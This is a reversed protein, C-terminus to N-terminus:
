FPQSFLITNLYWPLDRIDIFESTKADILAPKIVRSTLPTAGIMYVAYITPAPTFPERIPWLHCRMGPAAQRAKELALSSLKGEFKPHGPIRSGDRCASRARWMELTRDALTNILGTLGVVSA